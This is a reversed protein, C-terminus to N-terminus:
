HDIDNAVTGKKARRELKKVLANVWYSVAQIMCAAIAILLAAREIYWWATVIGMAMTMTMTMTM